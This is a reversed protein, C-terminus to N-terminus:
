RKTSKSSVYRASAFAGCLVPLAINACWVTMSALVAQYPSEMFPSFIFLALVERVGLEGLASFPVYSQCFYLMMVGAYAMLLNGQFGFLYLALVFQSSFVAYRLIAWGFGASLAAASLKSLELIISRSHQKLPEKFWFLLVAAIALVLVLTFSPELYNLLSFEPWNPYIILGVVGFIITVVGQIGSGAFTMLSAKKRISPPLVSIRGAFEGLRNPSLFGAGMGVLVAKFALKEGVSETGLLCKWKRMEIYLNVFTLAVICLITPTADYLELFLGLGLEGVRDYGMIMLAIILAASFLLQAMRGDRAKVLTKYM